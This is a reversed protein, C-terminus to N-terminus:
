VVSKRDTPTRPLWTLHTGASITRETSRSGKAGSQDDHLAVRMRRISPRVQRGPVLPTRPHPSREHERQDPAVAGDRQRPWADGPQNSSPTTVWESRDAVSHSGHCVCLNCSSRADICTADIRECTAM